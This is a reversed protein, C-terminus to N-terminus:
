GMFLTYKYCRCRSQLPFIDHIIASFGGTLSAPPKKIHQFSDISKGPDMRINTMWCNVHCKLDKCLGGTPQAVRRLLRFIGCVHRYELPTRDPLEKEIGEYPPSTPSPSRSRVVYRVTVVIPTFFIVRLVKLSLQCNNAVGPAPEPLCRKFLFFFIVPKETPIIRHRKTVQTWTTIKM